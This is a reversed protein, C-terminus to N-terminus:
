VLVFRELVSLDIVVDKNPRPIEPQNSYFFIGEGQTHGHLDLYM